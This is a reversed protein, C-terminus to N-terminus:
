RPTYSQYPYGPTSAQSGFAGPYGGGGVPTPLPYPYPYPTPLPYPYPAPFPPCCGPRGFGGGFGGVALGGLLGGALGAVFPFGFFRQDGYPVNRYAQYPYHYM